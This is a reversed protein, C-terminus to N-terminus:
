EGLNDYGGCNSLQQLAEAIEEDTANPDHMVRGFEEKTLTSVVEKRTGAKMVLDYLSMTM